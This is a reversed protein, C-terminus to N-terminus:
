KSIKAECMARLDKDKIKWCTKKDYAIAECYAKENKNKIKWCSKKNEYISECLAKQDKDKIKWCNGAELSFTLLVLISIKNMNM